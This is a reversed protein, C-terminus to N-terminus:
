TAPPPPQPAAYPRASPQRSLQRSAAAGPTPPVSPQRSVSQATAGASGAAGRAPSQGGGGDFRGPASRKNPSNAHPTTPQRDAGAGDSASCLRSPAHPARPPASEFRRSAELERLGALPSDM